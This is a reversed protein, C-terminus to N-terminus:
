GVIVHWAHDFDCFDLISGDICSALVVIVVAAGVVIARFPMTLYFAVKVLTKM